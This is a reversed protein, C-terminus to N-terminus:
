VGGIVAVGPPHRTANAAHICLDAERDRRKLLGGMKENAWIRKMSRILEAMKRYDRQVVAPVLERMERRRDLSDKSDRAMGTGRNYALSILAAQASPHLNKMGPWAREARDHFAILAEQFRWDAHDQSWYTGQKIDAGTLGKGITWPDGPLHAVSQPIRGTRGIDDIGRQGIAVGMPSRPDPYAHLHMGEEGSILEAAIQRAKAQIEAISM